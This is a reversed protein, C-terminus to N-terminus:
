VLQTVIWSTACGGAIAICNDGDYIKNLYDFTVEDRNKTESYEGCNGHEGWGWAYVSNSYTLALGHESGVAYEKFSFETETPFLQGHSNNGYSVLRNGDLIHISTWMSMVKSSKITCTNEQISRQVKDQAGFFKLGSEGCFVTFDKGVSYGTYSSSNAGFELRTPTWLVKESTLGLQGKRSVGWGYFDGNALRVVTHNMSSKVDTIKDPFTFPIPTLKTTRTQTKGLGLEGKLGLGSVFLVDETSVLISFEWGCSVLKWRGDLKLFRNIQSQPEIGLQGSESSGTGFVENSELLVLTHNGGCAILIPLESTIFDKGDHLFGAKQVTNHDDANGVGLQGSGNSGCCLLQYM